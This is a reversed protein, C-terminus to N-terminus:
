VIAQAPFQPSLLFASIVLKVYIFDFTSFVFLDSDNPGKLSSAPIPGAVEASGIRRVVSQAIAAHSLERSSDYCMCYKNDINNKM